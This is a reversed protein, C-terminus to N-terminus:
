SHEPREVEVL